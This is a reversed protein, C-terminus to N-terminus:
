CHGKKRLGQNKGIDLSENEAFQQSREHAEWSKTRGKVCLSSMFAGLALQIVHAICPIHNRLAPCEIGLVELTSELKATIWYTWSADDMGIGCLRGDTLVSCNLVDKLHLALRERTHQGKVWWRWNDKPLDLFCALLRMSLSYFTVWHVIEIRVTRLSWHYPSNTRQHGDTWGQVIKM